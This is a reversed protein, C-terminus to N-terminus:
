AQNSTQMAMEDICLSLTCFCRLRFFNTPLGHDSMLNFYRARRNQRFVFATRLKAFEGCVICALTAVVFILVKMRFLGTQM